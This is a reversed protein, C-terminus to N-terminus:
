WGQDLGDLVLLLTCLSHGGHNKKKLHGGNEVGSCMMLEHVVERAHQFMPQTEFLVLGPVTGTSRQNTVRRYMM